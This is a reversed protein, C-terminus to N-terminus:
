IFHKLIGSFPQNFTWKVTKNLDEALFMEEIKKSKKQLKNEPRIQYLLQIANYELCDCSDERYVNERLKPLHRLIFAMSSVARSTYGYGKCYCNKESTPYTPELKKLSSCIPTLHDKFIQIKHLNSWDTGWLKKKASDPITPFRGGLIVALLHEEDCTFDFSSLCLSTLQSCSSGLHILFQKYDGNPFSSPMLQKLSLDKLHKLSSLCNTLATLMKLSIEGTSEFNIELTTLFPARSAITKFLKHGKEFLNPPLTSIDLNTFTEDLVCDLFVWADPRETNTDPSSVWESHRSHLDNNFRQFLKERITDSMTGVLIFELRERVFKRISKSTVNLALFSSSPVGHCFSEAAQEAKHSVHEPCLLLNFVIERYAVEFAIDELCKIKGTMVANM